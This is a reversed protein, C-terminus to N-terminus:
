SYWELNIASDSDQEASIAAAQVLNYDGSSQDIYGDSGPSYNSNPGNARLGNRAGSTNNYFVNWDEWESDDNTVGDFNLGYAGNNTIRNGVIVVNSVSGTSFILVGNNTNGDIICNLIRNSVNAAYIHIGHDANKAILTACITSSYATEIGSSGNNMIKCFLLTSLAPRVVGFTTNSSFDCLCYTANSLYTADVGVTGNSRCVVYDFRWSDSYATTSKIGMGAADTIFLRLFWIRAINGPLNFNNTSVSDGDITALYSTGDGEEWSSDVGVFKIHGSGITGSNTDFTYGPCAKATCNAGGISDTQTINYVGHTIDIDSYGKDGSTVIEFTLLTATIECLTAVFDAGLSGGNDTYNEISDGAAWTGSKDVDVTITCYRKLHGTGKIAVIEGATANDIAKQLGYPGVFPDGTSTGADGTSFDGAMDCYYDATIAAM